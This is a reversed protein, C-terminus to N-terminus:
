LGFLMFRLNDQKSKALNMGHGLEDDVSRILRNMTERESGTTAKTLSKLDKSLGRACGVTAMKTNAKSSQVVDSEFYTGKPHQRTSKGVSIFEGEM